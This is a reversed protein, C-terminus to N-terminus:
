APPGSGGPSNPAEGAKEPRAECPVPAAVHPVLDALRVARRPAPEPDARSFEICTHERALWQEDMPAGMIAEATMLSAERSRTQWRELGGPTTSMWQEVTEQDPVTVCKWGMDALKAVIRGRERYTIHASIHDGWGVDLCVGAQSLHNRETDGVCTFLPEM